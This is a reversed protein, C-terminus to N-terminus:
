DMEIVGSLMPELRKDLSVNLSTRNTMKSEGESADMVSKLNEIDKHGAFINGGSRFVQAEV